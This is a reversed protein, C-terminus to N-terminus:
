VICPIKAKTHFCKCVHRYMSEITFISSFYSSESKHSSLATLDICRAEFCAKDLNSIGIIRIYHNTYKKNNLNEEECLNRM